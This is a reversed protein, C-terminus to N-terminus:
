RYGIGPADNKALEHIIMIALALAAVSYWPSVAILLLSQFIVVGAFGYGLIFGLQREKLLQFGGTLALAAIILDWVGWYVLHHSFPGSSANSVRDSDAFYYIASIIRLVGVSFMVVAAFTLWAPRRAVLMDQMTSM